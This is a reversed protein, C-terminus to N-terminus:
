VASASSMMHLGDGSALDFRAVPSSASSYAGVAEGLRADSLAPASASSFAGVACGTLM